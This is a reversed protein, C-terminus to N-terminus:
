EYESLKLFRTPLVDFNLNIYFNFFLDIFNKLSSLSYNLNGKILYTEKKM